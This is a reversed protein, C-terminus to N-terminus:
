TELWTEEKFKEKFKINGIKASHGIYSEIFLPMLSEFCM